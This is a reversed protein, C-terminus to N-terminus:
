QFARIVARSIRRIDGLHILDSNQRNYVIGPQKPEIQGTNNIGDQLVYLAFADAFGEGSDRGYDRFYYGRGTQAVPDAYPEEWYLGRSISHYINRLRHGHHKDIAHGIEHILVFETPVGLKFALDYLEITRSISSYAFSAPVGSSRELQNIKTIRWSDGLVSQWDLGDEELKSKVLMLTTKVQKLEELTWVSSGGAIIWRWWHGQDCLGGSCFQSELYSWCAEDGNDACHGTSDTFLIPNGLVYAYRNLQQPNVPDPVITDASAFRGIGPVYFRANYYLLGLELNEKQG